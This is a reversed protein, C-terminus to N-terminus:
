RGRRPDRARVDRAARARVARGVVLVPVAGRRRFPGRRGFAAAFTVVTLPAFLLAATVLGPDYERLVIAPVVHVIANVAIVGWLTLAALAHRRALLAALPGVVGLVPVGGPRRPQACGRRRC